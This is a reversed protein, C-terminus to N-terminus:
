KRAARSGLRMARDLNCLVVPRHADVLLGALGHPHVGVARGQGRLRQLLRGSGRSATRSLLKPARAAGHTSRPGLKIRRAAATYWSTDTGSVEVSASSSAMSSRSGGVRTVAVPRMTALSCRRAYPSLRTGRTPRTTGAHARARSSAACAGM